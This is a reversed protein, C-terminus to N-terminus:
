VNRAEEQHRIIIEGILHEIEDGPLELLQPEIGAMLLERKLQKSEHYYQLPSRGELALTEPDKLRIKYKAYLALKKAKELAEM